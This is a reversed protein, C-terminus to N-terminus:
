KKNKKWIKFDGTPGLISDLDLKDLAELKKAVSEKTVPKEPKKPKEKTFIKGVDIASETTITLDLDVGPDIEIEGTALNKESIEMMEESSDEQTIIIEEKPEFKPKPKEIKKAPVPSSPQKVNKNIVEFDDSEATTELTKEELETSDVKKGLKYYEDDYIYSRKFITSEASLTLDIDENQKYFEQIKSRSEGVEDTLENITYPQILYGNNNAGKIKVYSLGDKLDSFAITKYDFKQPENDGNTYIYVLEKTQSEIGIVKSKVTKTPFYFIKGRSSRGVPKIKSAKVRKFQGQDTYIIIRDAGPRVTHFAEIELGNELKILNIGSAKSSYESIIRDEIFYYIGGTLLIFLMKEANSIKVDVLLDDPKLPMCTRKRCIQKDKFEELSMKKAMGLRTIFIFNVYTRFSAIEMVRIIKENTDLAVLSSIHSGLDKWGCEKLIHADILFYNGLNTFFILKSLSNIQCYYFIADNEKLKYTNFENSKKTKISVRKYYGQESIFFYFDENKALLKTNIANSVKENSIETKRPVGYTKKIENLQNILFKDFESPNTLLLNCRAIMAELELKENRYEQQDLKSLKYLRLEAIATAQLNTFGFTEELAQIVGKRSNDSERIVKIVEDSIEAVRIFGEIIELRIKHKELDFQIGKTNVDRLHTLYAYLLMELNMLKPANEYIAVMNYNYSIRLDTKSMFYNIIAEPNADKDLELYISIGERNSQDRIDIIGSITKDIVLNSMDSVLKSKVVGFPIEYIDIGIIKDEDEPDYVFKYKSSLIIKGQGKEFADYIGEVGNIIGGTPFDPGKIIEKLDAFSSNPKKILKITADLVENLNHPPIETAFGAAIGKAGNILLNPILSPLITPEYESDDFNPAMTVVKRDLDKLLLESIKELRSETYRMAAAPDDDISGKNGHMEILPYNSKWEQCMRVLAEYISSDGHPHFRGIVDGVIRASKKFPQNNKLHLNWMSYLIRRQVPKLGDRADPIARQQIIYKSYRGFRDSMIDIMNKEIINEVVEDIHHKEDNTLKKM